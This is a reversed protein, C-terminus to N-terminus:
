MINSSLAIIYVRSSPEIGLYLTFDVRGNKISLLRHMVVGVDKSKDCLQDVGEALTITRRRVKTDWVKFSFLSGNSVRLYSLM